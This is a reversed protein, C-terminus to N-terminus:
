YIDGILGEDLMSIMKKTKMEYLRSLDDENNLEKYQFFEDAINLAALIALKQASAGPLSGALERMKSDIFKALRQVYEPDTEGSISYSSGLITVETRTIPQAM